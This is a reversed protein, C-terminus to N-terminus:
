FTIAVIVVKLLRAKTCCGVFELLLLLLCDPLSQIQKIQYMGTTSTRRELSEQRQQQQEM